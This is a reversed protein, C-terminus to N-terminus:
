KNKPFIITERYKGNGATFNSCMKEIGVPRNQYEYPRSVRKSDDEDYQLKSINLASHKNSPLPESTLKEQTKSQKKYHAKGM